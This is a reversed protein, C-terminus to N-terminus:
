SPLPTNEKKTSIFQFTMAYWKDLYVRNRTAKMRSFAGHLGAQIYEALYHASFETTIEGDDQGEKICAAIEVLAQQFQADAVDAITHNLGGLETSMNNILCGADCGDKENMNLFYAYLLRLREIPSKDMDGLFSRIMTVSNKGYEQLSQEVFDEKSEFFNYFSGKPIGCAKLIENIGVNHYGRKRILESGIAIIDEKNHKYGM